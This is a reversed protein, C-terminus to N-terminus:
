AAAQVQAAAGMRQIEAVADAASRMGDEHFGWGWYAGAFWTRRRGQIESKRRQAAVAAADYVPHHYTMRHLICTPDIAETRNLTVVFPRPSSIGQLLNMCYSVTCAQDKGAPVYANWAAWANRRRPLLSADTHLVTDNAQYRIAGLVDREAPSADALLALAQDSHCALVIHDFSETGYPTAVDVVDDRRRISTVPCALREHVRWRKRMATVYTNSGDQVVRWPPREAIQLMQHNAMFQVLYLVPFSLIQASPSSWLASAMPVLHDDRFAEGYRHEALYDGLTQSSRVQELLAPAERYFRMLDRVMGLFRPSWLNRRQCFLQDLTGANYELGTAANQVSFSMTTPQSEVRLEDFLQSLLPYHARNFVIFGTDIRYAQGDQQVDHTHTHGGLYDNAEFLTVDQSRSLMYASALGAIGSGIVAIRM